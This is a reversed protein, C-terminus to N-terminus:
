TLNTADLYEIIYFVFARFNLDKPNSLVYGGLVPYTIGKIEKLGISTMVFGEDITKIPKHDEPQPGLQLIRTPTSTSSSSSSPEPKADNLVLRAMNWTNNRIAINKQDDFYVESVAFFPNKKWEEFSNNRDPYLNWFHLLYVSKGAIKTPTLRIDVAWDMKPRELYPFCFNSVKPNAVDRM